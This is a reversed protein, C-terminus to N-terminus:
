LVMIQPVNAAFTEASMCQPYTGVPFSNYYDSTPEVHTDPNIKATTYLFTKETTDLLKLASGGVSPINSVGTLLGQNDYLGVEPYYDAGVQMLIAATGNFAGGSIPLIKARCMIAIGGILNPTVQKRSVGRHCIRYKSTDSSSASRDGSSKTPCFAPINLVGPYINDCLGDGNFTNTYFWAMSRAVRSTADSLLEWKGTSLNFFQMQFDYVQFGVNTATNTAAPILTIWGVVDSWWMTTLADYTTSDVLPQLYNKYSTALADGKIRSGMSIWAKLPWIATPMPNMATAEAFGMQNYFDDYTLTKPKYRLIM